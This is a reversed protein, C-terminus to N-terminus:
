DTLRQIRRAEVAHATLIEDMRDSVLVSNRVV